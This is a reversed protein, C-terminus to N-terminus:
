VLQDDQSKKPATLWGWNRGTKISSIASVSLGFHDAIEKHKRKDAFIQLAIADTIKSQANSAGNRRSFRNRDKMDNTNDQNSGFYLHEPNMCLRNDCKHLVLKESETIGVYNLYSLRHARIVAGKYCALGYGDSSKVGLWNWCGNDTKAHNGLVDEIPRTKREKKPKVRCQKCQPFLNDVRSSDRGFSDFSKEQNCKTCTKM